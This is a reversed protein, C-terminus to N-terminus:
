DCWGLHVAAVEIAHLDIAVGELEEPMNHHLWDYVQDAFDHPVKINPLTHQAIFHVYSERSRTLEETLM